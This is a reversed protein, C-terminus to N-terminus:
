SECWSSLSFFCSLLVKSPPYPLHFNPLCQWLGSFLILNDSSQEEWMLWLCIHLFHCSFFNCSGKRCLTAFEMAAPWSFTADRTTVLAYCFLSEWAAPFSSLTPFSSSILICFIFIYDLTFPSLLDKFTEPLGKCLQFSYTCPFICSEWKYLQLYTEWEVGELFLVLESNFNQHNRPSPFADTPANSLTVLTHKQTFTCYFIDIVSKLISM